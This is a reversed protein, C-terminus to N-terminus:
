FDMVRAQYSIMTRDDVAKMEIIVEAKLGAIIAKTAALSAKAEAKGKHQWEEEEEVM